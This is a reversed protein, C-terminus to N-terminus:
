ITVSNNEELHFLLFCYSYYFSFGKKKKKIVIILLYVSFYKGKWNSGVM